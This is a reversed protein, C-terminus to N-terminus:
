PLVAWAALGSNEESELWVLLTGPKTKWRVAARAETELGALRLRGVGDARSIIDAGEPAIWGMFQGLLDIRRVRRTIQRRLEAVIAAGDQGSYGRLAALTTATTADTM